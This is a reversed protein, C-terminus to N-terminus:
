AEMRGGAPLEHHPLQGPALASVRKELKAIAARAADGVSVQKGFNTRATDGTLARLQPLAETAGLRALADIATVRVNPDRDALAAILANVAPRGGIEGLAWAVKYSISVDAMLQILTPVAREDQLLGLLHVAYYRDASIQYDLSVIGNGPATPIGPGRIRDSTDTLMDTLVDFGRSEGLGAFVFAANGRQHRDQHTLFSALSPLVRADKLAVLKKAVELQAYPSGPAVFEALLHAADPPQASPRVMGQALRGYVMKRVRPAPGYPSTSERSLSAPVPAAIDARARWTGAVGSKVPSQFGSASTGCLLVVVALWAM